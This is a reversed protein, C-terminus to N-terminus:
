NDLRKIEKCVKCKQTGMRLQTKSFESRRFSKKCGGCKTNGYPVSTDLRGRMVNPIINLPLFANKEYEDYTRTPLDRFYKVFRKSAVRLREENVSKSLPMRKKFHDLLLFTVRTDVAAYELLMKNIPRIAWINDVISLLESGQNKILLIQDEKLYREICKSMGARTPLRPHWGRRVKPEQIKEEDLAVERYMM